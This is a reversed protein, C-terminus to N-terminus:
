SYLAGVLLALPPVITTGHKLISLLALVVAILAITIPDVVSVVSAGGPWTAAQAFPLPVPVSILDSSCM